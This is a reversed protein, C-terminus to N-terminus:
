SATQKLTPWGSRWRTASRSSPAQQMREGTPVIYHSAPYIAKHSISTRLRQRHATNIECIRDIEDGFFEVRVATDGSYAPFIEVVDGSFGSSTAPSTSTTASM